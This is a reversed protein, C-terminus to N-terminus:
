APQGPERNGTRIVRLPRGVGVAEHDDGPESARLKAIEAEIKELRALLKDREKRLRELEGPATFKAAANIAKAATKYREITISDPEMEIVVGYWRDRVRRGSGTFTDAAFEVPTGPKVGDLLYYFEEGYARPCFRRDLGGPARPNKWIVAMWNKAEKHSLYVPVELLAGQEVRFKFVNSEDNEAM